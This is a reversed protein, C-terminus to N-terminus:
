INSRSFDRFFYVLCNKKVFFIASLLLWSSYTFSYLVLSFDLLTLSLIYCQPSALFLLHIFIAGLLWSSYSFSYLPSSFDLITISLIYCQSSTLFLLHFVSHCFFLNRWSRKFFFILLFSYYRLWVISVKWNHLRHIEHFWLYFEILCSLTRIFKRMVLSINLM